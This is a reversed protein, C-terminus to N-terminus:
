LLMARAQADLNCVNNKNCSCHQLMHGKELPLVLTHVLAVIRM